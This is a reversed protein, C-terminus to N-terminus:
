LFFISGSGLHGRPKLWQMSLGWLINCISLSISFFHTPYFHPLNSMLCTIEISTSRRSKLISGHNVSFLQWCYHIKQCFDILFIQSSNLMIRVLIHLELSSFRRVSMKADFIALFCLLNSLFIQSVRKLIPHFIKLCFCYQLIKM